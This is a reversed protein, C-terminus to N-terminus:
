PITLEGPPSSSDGYGKMDLALVRFGAQALAPIQFVVTWHGPLTAEGTRRQDGQKCGKRGREQSHIWGFHWTAGTLRKGMSSSPAWKMFRGYVITPNYVADFGCQASIDKRVFGKCIETNM